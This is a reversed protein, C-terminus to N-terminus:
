ALKGLKYLHILLNQNASFSIIQVIEKGDDDTEGTGVTEGPKVYSDTGEEQKQLKLYIDNFFDGIDDLLTFKAYFASYNAKEVAIGGNLAARLESVKDTTNPYLSVLSIAISAAQAAAGYSIYLNESNLCVYMAVLNAQYERMVGKGHAMEHALTTPLYMSNENGNVNAEGFPAFFVGTIHLQSMIWKNLIRKGHPTYSSFYDSQIKEYEEALLDSLESFSFPYVINGDEDHETNEYCYNAKEVLIEALAIAQDSTFQESSYEKYVEEPLSDRNYAFSASLTYVNLFSVIAIAVALVLSTLQRWRRKALFIIVFVVFAVAGVIALILFLEYVSFPLWGLLTGFVAIWARSVTTAFFECVAQNGSLILLTVFVATLVALAIIKRITTKRPKKM